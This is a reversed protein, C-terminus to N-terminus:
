WLLGSHLSINSEKSTEPLQEAIWAELGLQVDEMTVSTSVDSRQDYFINIEVDFQRGGSLKILTSDFMRWNAMALHPLPAVDPHGDSMIELVIGEFENHGSSMTNLFTCLDELADDDDETFFDIKLYLHKLNPIESM